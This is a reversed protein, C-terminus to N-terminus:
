DGPGDIVLWQWARGQGGRAAAWIVDIVGIRGAEPDVYDGFDLKDGNSGVIRAGPVIQQIEPLAQELGEPTNPYYQLIRGIRYKFTQVGPDHMKQMDYGAFQGVGPRPQDGAPATGDAGETFRSFIQIFEDPSLAGDGDVDLRRVLERVITLTDTSTSIPISM